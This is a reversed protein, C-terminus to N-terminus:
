LLSGGRSRARMQGEGGGGEGGGEEGGGEGGGGTIQFQHYLPALPSSQHLPVLHTVPDLLAMVTLEPGKCPTEIIM